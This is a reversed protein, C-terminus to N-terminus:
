KRGNNEIFGDLWDFARMFPKMIRVRLLDICCVFFLLLMAVVVIAVIRFPLYPITSAFDGFTKYLLDGVYGIDTLLYAAFVGGGFMNVIKSKFRFTRVFLFLGIAGIILLPNNYGWLNGMPVNVYLRMINCCGFIIACIAYISFLLTKHHAINDDLVFRHLYGGILYLYIFNILSYGNVDYAPKQWFWGLYFQLFTMCLLAFLYQKKTLLRISYNLFPSIFMLMLYCTVFWWSSAHSFIFVSKTVFTHPVMQVSSNVVGFVYSVIGYFACQLYLAWIRRACLHIGFYGSIIIFVNVGVYFFGELVSYTAYELSLAGTGTLVSQCVSHVILHHMLIFLMLIIRLLEINSERKM